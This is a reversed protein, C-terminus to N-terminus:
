LSRIRSLAEQVWHLDRGHQERWNKNGEELADIAILLAQAIAPFNNRLSTVFQLNDSGEATMAEGMPEVIDCPDEVPGVLEKGNDDLGCGISGWNDDGSQFWCWKGSPVLRKEMEQLEKVLGIIDQPITM